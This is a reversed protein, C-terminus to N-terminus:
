RTSNPRSPPVTQVSSVVCRGLIARCITPHKQDGHLHQKGLHLQHVVGNEAVEHGDTLHADASIDDGIEVRLDQVADALVDNGDKQQQHRQDHRDEAKDASAGTSFTRSLQFCASAVSPMRSVSNSAVIPMIYAPRSM